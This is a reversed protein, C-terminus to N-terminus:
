ESGVWSANNYLGCLKMIPMGLVEDVMRDHWTDRMAENLRQIFGEKYKVCYHLWRAVHRPENDEWWRGGRSECEPSGGGGGAVMDRRFGALEAVYEAMGDILGPPARSGADFLWAKAMGRLIAGVIAVKNYNKDKLLMPSIEIVYNFNKRGDNHHNGAAYVATANLNRRALRLIVSDIHKKPNHNNKNNDNPYLFHEVFSSTNQLIRTARDNSVYSLAFRRGAPSDYADNVITIDFTKSAEYNAWISIIAVTLVLLIRLIINNDSNFHKPNKPTDYPPNHSYSTTTTFPILPQLNHRDEEEM